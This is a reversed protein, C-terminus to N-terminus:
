GRTFLNSHASEPVSWILQDGHQIEEATTESALDLRISLCSIYIYIYLHVCPCVLYICVRDVAHNRVCQAFCPGLLPVLTSFNHRCCTALRHPFPLQKTSSGVDFSTSATSVANGHQM